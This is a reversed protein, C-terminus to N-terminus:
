TDKQATLRRAYGATEMGAVCGEDVAKVVQGPPVAFIAPPM